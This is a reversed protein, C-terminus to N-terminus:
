PGPRGATPDLLRAGTRAYRAHARNFRDKLVAGQVGQARLALGIETTVRLRQESDLYDWAPTLGGIFEQTEGLTNLYGSELFPSLAALEARCQRCEALHRDLM